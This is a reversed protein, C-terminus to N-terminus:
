VNEKKELHQTLTVKPLHPLRLHVIDAAVLAGDEDGDLPDLHPKMGASDPAM